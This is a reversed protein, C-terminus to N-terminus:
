TCYVQEAGGGPRLGWREEPTEEMHDLWWRGWRGWWRTWVATLREWCPPTGMVSGGVVGVVEVVNEVVLGGEVVVEVVVVMM